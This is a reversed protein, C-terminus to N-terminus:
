YLHRVVEATIGASVGPRCALWSFLPYIFFAEIVRLKDASGALRSFEFGRGGGHDRSFRRSPMSVLQVISLIFFAEIVRLKEASGALRSFEFGRGGGHDRSFRRSPM